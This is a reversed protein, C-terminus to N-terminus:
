EEAFKWLLGDTWGNLERYIVWKPNCFVYSKDESDVSIVCENVWLRSSLRALMKTTDHVAKKFEVDRLGGNVTILVNTQHEFLKHYNEYRALNSMRNFEDVNSSVNHGKVLNLYLKAPGESGEILPLHDVVTQAIYMAEASSRAMTNVKISGNVFSWVSM